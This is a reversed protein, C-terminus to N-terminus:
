WGEKGIFITSIKEDAPTYVASIYFDGMLVWSEETGDGRDKIDDPKGFYRRFKEIDDMLRVPLFDPLDTGNANYLCAYYLFMGHEDTEKDYTEYLIFDLGDFERMSLAFEGWEDKIINYPNPDINIDESLKEEWGQLWEIIKARLELRRYKEADEISESLYAGYVFGEENNEARIKYWYDKNGDIEAYDSKELIKVRVNFDLVDIRKGGITERLNIGDITNVYKYVVTNKEAANEEQSTKENSTSENGSTKKECSVLLFGFAIIAFINKILKM